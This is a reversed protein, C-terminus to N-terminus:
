SNVKVAAVMIAIMIGRLKSLSTPKADESKNKKQSAEITIRTFDRVDRVTACVGTNEPCDKIYDLM